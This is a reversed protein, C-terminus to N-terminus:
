PAREPFLAGEVEVISQEARDVLGPMVGQDLGTRAWAVPDIPPADDLDRSDLEAMHAVTNAIHVVAAEVPHRQAAGPEHHHRICETLLSPLHWCEALAGGVQAHDFGMVEREAVQPPTAGGRDITLLFARHSEEPLRNFVLLRGIDHLLGGIFVTEAHEPVVQEALMRAALGCYLSHRWFVEMSMLNNPIGEFKHAMASALVLDRVQEPGIVTVARQLSDVKSSFGYFASNAVRLVRITLAPDKGIVAAIESAGTNPDDLLRNLRVVVGPLSLLGGAQAILQDLTPVM